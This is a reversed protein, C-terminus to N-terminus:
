NGNKRKNEEIRKDAREAVKEAEKRIQTETANSNGTREAMRKNERVLYEFAEREKGM